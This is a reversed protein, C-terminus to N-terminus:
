ADGFLIFTYLYRYMRVIHMFAYTGICIGPFMFAYTGICLYRYLFAYTDYANGITHICLYRYM